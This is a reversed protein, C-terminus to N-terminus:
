WFNMIGKMLEFLLRRLSVQIQHYESNLDLKYFITAGHLEDLTGDILPTPFKDTMTERNLARYYVCDGVGM